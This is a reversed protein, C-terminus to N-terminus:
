NEKVIHKIAKKIMKKITKRVGDRALIECFLCVNGKITYFIEVFSHFFSCVALMIGNGLYKMPMWYINKKMTDYSAINKSNWNSQIVVGIYGRAIDSEKIGFLYYLTQQHRMHFTKFLPECPYIPIIKEKQLWLNYWSFEYPAIELLKRYTYENKVVFEEYFNKLVATSFIQFGHCTLTKNTKLGIMNKIQEIYPERAAWNACYYLPDVQLEKDEVLVTYPTDMDYMFDSFYFDRIFYSDSDICFYNECLGLKWFSLKIIQQVRWGDLGKMDSDYLKEEAIVEKILKYSDGINRRLESIDSQPLVVYLPIEDKNYKKYSELFRKLYKFDGQYTKLMIGIKDM